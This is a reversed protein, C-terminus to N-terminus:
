RNTPKGQRMQKRVAALEPSLRIAQELQAQAEQPSGLAELVLGLNFHALAHSPAIRVAAEFHQRSEPGRGPIGAFMAGLNYHAEFGDPNVRAAAEFRAIADGARGPMRAFVAGLNVLADVNIPDTQVVAEFERVADAEHGPTRSWLVGLAYHSVMDTPDVRVAQTLADVAETDGGPQRGLLLGRNRHATGYDPKIRVASTYHALAETDHGTMRDFIAGLNNHADAYDPKLRLATEFSRVADPLHGPMSSYVLALANHARPNSPRKVTTDTWIALESQYVRNRAFTLASFAILIAISVVFVFRAGIAQLGLVALVLVPIMPLYLRSEAMPQHAIPVISSTPALLVFFAVCLWGLAPRRVLMWGSTGLLVAVIALFPLAETLSRPWETTGYDFILRAPWLVLLLYELLVKSETLAYVWPTYDNLSGIGRLTIRSSLMLAGLALWTAALAGYVFRRQRWIARFSTGLVTRDFLLLILPATVMTEKVAMGATCALVSLIYWPRGRDAGVGRLLGYLALLYCLGMLAEARQSVYTVTETHVPHLAWLSAVMWATATPLTSGITGFRPLALTRRVLAFLVFASALHIFLNVLHYGVPSTGGLAYNVAFSLNLLPRGATFIEPPPFLVAKFSALSRISPNHIVANVDDFLLPTSLSNAYALATIALLSILTLWQTPKEPCFRVEIFSTIPVNDPKDTLRPRELIGISRVVPHERSIDAQRTM